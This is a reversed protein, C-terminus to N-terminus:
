ENELHHVNTVIFSLIPKMKVFFALFFRTKALASSYTQLPQHTEREYPVTCYNGPPPPTPFGYPPM